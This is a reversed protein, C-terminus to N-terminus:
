CSTHCPGQWVLQQVDSRFFLLWVPHPQYWKGGLTNSVATGECDVGNHWFSIVTLLLRLGYQLTAPPDASSYVWAAPGGGFLYISVRIYVAMFGLVVIKRSGFLDVFSSGCARVDAPVLVRGHRLSLVVSAPPLFM